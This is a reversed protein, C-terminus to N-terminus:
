RHADRGLAHPQNEADIPEEVHTAGRHVDAAVQDDRRKDAAVLALTWGLGLRRDRAASGSRSGALEQESPAQKRRISLVRRQLTREGRPNWGPEPSTGMCTLSRFPAPKATTITASRAVPQSREVSSDAPALAPSRWDRARSDRAWSSPSTTRAPRCCGTSTTRSWHPTGCM